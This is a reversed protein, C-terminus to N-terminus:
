AVGIGVVTASPVLMPAQKDWDTPIHKPDVTSGDVEEGLLRTASSSWGRWGQGSARVAEWEQVGPARERMRGANMSRLFM